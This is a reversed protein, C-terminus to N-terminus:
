LLWLFVWPTLFLKVYMYSFNGSIPNKGYSLLVSPHQLKCSHSQLSTTQLRTLHILTVEQFVVEATEVREQEEGDLMEQGVVHHLDTWPWLTLTWPPDSETQTLLMNQISTGCQQVTHKSATVNSFLNQFFIFLVIITHKSESRYRYPVM